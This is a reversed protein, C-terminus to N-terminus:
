LYEFDLQASLENYEEKDISRGFRPKAIQCTLFLM